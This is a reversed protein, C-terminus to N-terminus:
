RRRPLMWDFTRTVIEAAPRGEGNRAPDYRFRREILRCTTADLEEDASSKIIECDSVSGDTRVTFRVAVSGEVGARRASRPYDTAGSISGSLRVAKRGGGGGGPGTGQGGSGTGTGAGGSGTGPGPLDSAGASADRGTVPNPLPATVVPPPVKLKVRPPPAVVPSPKAKLNPPAAAGEEQPTRETAPEPEQPPPPPPEPLVDFAKLQDSVRTAIRTGLGTILAYGLLAHFAAVGLAAKIRDRNRDKIPRVVM